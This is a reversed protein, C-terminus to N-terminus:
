KAIIELTRLTVRSGEGKIAMNPIGSGDTTNFEACLSITVKVDKIALRVRNNCQFDALHGEM